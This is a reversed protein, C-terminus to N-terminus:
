LQSRARSVACHLHPLGHSPLFAPTNERTRRPASLLDGKQRYLKIREMESEVLKRQEKSLFWTPPHWEDTDAYSNIIEITPPHFEKLRTKEAKNVEGYGNPSLDRLCAGSTKRSETRGEMPKAGVEQPAQARPENQRPSNCQHALLFGPSALEVGEAIEVSNCYM